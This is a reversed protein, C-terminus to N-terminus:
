DKIIGNAFSAVLSSRARELWAELEALSKKRIIAQFAAIIERAEVLLPAGGEIAAITVTEAKSLDDRGVDYATRHDAGVSSPEPRQRSKGDTSSTHGVRLRGASVRQVGAEKPTAMAGHRQTTGCGM